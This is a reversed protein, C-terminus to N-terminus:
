FSRGVGFHLRFRRITRTSTSEIPDTNGSEVASGVAGPRRLDLADPTLKYALDLRIFGFQTKYRVGGGTGILLQSPNTSVADGDPTAAIDSLGAPPTLSLSGPTLYAGDLFIATRWSSGLGPFPLRAELNVGLKLRGGISRYVYETRAIDSKRLVKGGALQSQWGRVDTGGGAYFLHNSFRDQFTRNLRRQEPPAPSPLILNDRSEGLPWIVGGFLRGALEIDDSYPLYGSLGGSTRAFEVGSNLLLGGVQASPRFIVGETPNVFDDAKGFTGSISFISRDFLDDGLPAADTGSPPPFQQVRTLSHELSISRFPLLDYVLRTNLGIQRESLDLFRTPNAGLTPNIKEEAFPELSASLRDVFFYPQRLTVSTRFRRKPDQTTSRSLFDPIFSPPNEPYGTEAIGGVNLTRADGQFNRHRWNGELTVGKQTGYGLQGSYARLKAERVRYRVTVSRDRPQDPIDALAVRFLNLDFLQQQGDSVDTASFRDGVQFPLERLVIQDSVSSNGEIRIESVTGRPGPDVTLELSVAAAATDIQTTSTVQPFAFGRNRLWSQVNDELQTRKFQTYREGTQLTTRARFDIWERHLADDFETEAPAAGDGSRFDINRLTLPPGERITFIVHIANASTDLQSAPYDIDPKLFGNQQYFQRLRAVDKQLTIPDFPFAIRKLGPLFAFTNRLRAVFGPVQTAIQEQLREPPFTQSDVFRYSIESVSTNENTLRLPAQARSPLTVTSLGLLM